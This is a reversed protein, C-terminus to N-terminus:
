AAPAEKIQIPEEFHCAKTPMERPFSALVSLSLEKGTM